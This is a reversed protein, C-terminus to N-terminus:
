YPRDDLDFNSRLRIGSYLNLRTGAGSLDTGAGSSGTGVGFSGTGFDRPQSRRIEPFAASFQRGFSIKTGPHDRGQAECWVKWAKFLEDRDVTAGEGLVCCDEVFTKIPSTQELLDQAIEDASAPRVLYGRAKFRQLGDLAWKVIGPLEVLLRATLGFDEKGLFSKSIRFPLFRNALAASADSFAPLENAALVFRTPLKGQWAILNKRDINVADEGSIRLLNEVIPQQDARGSLRGDSIMALRKGILPQLGFQNGLSALSPSVRNHAGVLAELVRLITGKGSRPPGILMFMKHQSTDDTLLYGFMEALVSISEPDDPWISHLFELWARPAPASADYDFDLANIVFLRDTAPLLKRTPYHLFGNHFAVLEHAPCDTRRQDIWVQPEPLDAYCVARLAHAIDNIKKATPDFAVVEYAGTKTNTIRWTDCQETWRYLRQEIYVKDRVTYRCGNWSFFEGRWFLIRGGEPLRKHFLQAAEMPKGAFILLRSSKAIEVPANPPEYAEEQEGFCDAVAQLGEAGHLDNFDTGLGRGDEIWTPFVVRAGIADAARQAAERGPADDDGGIVIAANPIAARIKQAVPVLNGADFAVAVCHGTAQHLSAGTAYGECIIIVPRMGTPQGIFHFAGRKLGGPLYDRDRGLEPAEADFIAQLSVLEGDVTRIPLILADHQGRHWDGIRLGFAQVGKRDLYPHSAGNVEKAASWIKEAMVAANARRKDQDARAREEERQRRARRKDIEAQSLPTRRAEDFTFGAQKAEGILTAITVGGTTKISRWTDRADRENYSASGHSWEDWMRFGAEGLESKIAMGTRVWRDRDCAPDLYHLAAGIEQETLDRYLSAAAM